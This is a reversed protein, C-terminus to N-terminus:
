VSKQLHIIRTKSYKAGAPISVDEEGFEMQQLLVIVLEENAEVEFRSFKSFIVKLHWTIQKEFM